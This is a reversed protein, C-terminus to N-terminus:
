RARKFARKALRIQERDNGVVVLSPATKHGFDMFCLPMKVDSCSTCTKTNPLVELREPHIPHGCYFCDKM